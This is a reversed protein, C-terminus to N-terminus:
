PEKERKDTDIQDGLSKQCIWLVSSTQLGLHGSHRVCGSKRNNGNGFHRSGHATNFNSSELRDQDVAVTITVRESRELPARDAIFDLAQWAPLLRPDDFLLFNM